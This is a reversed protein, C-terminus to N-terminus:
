QLAGEVEGGAAAGAGLVGVPFTSLRGDDLQAGRRRVARGGSGRVTAALRRGKACTSWRAPALGSPALRRRRPRSVCKGRGGGGRPSYMYMWSSSRAFAKHLFGKAQITGRPSQAAPAGSRARRRRCRHRSRRARRRKRRTTTTTTTTTTTRTRTRARDRRSGRVSIIPGRRQTGRREARSTRRANPFSPAVNVVEARRDVDRVRLTLQRKVPRQSSASDFADLANAVENRFRLAFSIYEHEAGYTQRAVQVSVDLLAVAEVMDDRTGDGVRFLSSALGNRLHYTTDAEVGLYRAAREHVDRLLSRRRAAFGCNALGVALNNAAHLTKSYNPGHRRMHHAHIDECLKLAEAHRGLVVYCNVLSDWAGV